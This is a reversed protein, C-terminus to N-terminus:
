YLNFLILDAMDKLDKLKSKNIFFEKVIIELRRLIAKKEKNYLILIFVKYLGLLYYM